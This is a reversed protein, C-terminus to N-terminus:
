HACRARSQDRRGLLRRARHRDNGVPAGGPPPFGPVALFMGVIATFMILSVVKPKTLAFYDRARASGRGPPPLPPTERATMLGSISAAKFRRRFIFSEKPTGKLPDAAPRYPARSAARRVGAPRAPLESFVRVRALRQAAPTHVISLPPGMQTHQTLVMVLHGEVLERAALLDMTQTIGAGRAAALM